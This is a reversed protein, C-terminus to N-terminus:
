EVARLHAFLIAPWPLSAEVDKWSLAWWQRELVRHETWNGGRGEIRREFFLRTAYGSHSSPHLLADMTVPRGAAKFPLAPLLVVPSGGEKHLQAPPHIAKIKEFEVAAETM